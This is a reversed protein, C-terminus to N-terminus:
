RMRKGERVLEMLQDKIALIEDMEILALRDDHGGGFLRFGETGEFECLVVGPTECADGAVQKGAWVGEVACARKEAEISGKVLDGIPTKCPCVDPLEEFEPAPLTTALYSDWLALELARGYSTDVTTFKDPHDNCLKAQFSPSPWSITLKLRSEQTALAAAAPTLRVCLQSFPKTASLPTPPTPM